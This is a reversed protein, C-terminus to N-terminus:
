KGGGGVSWKKRIEEVPDSTETPRGGNSPSGDLAKALWFIGKGKGEGMILSEAKQARNTAYWAEAHERKQAATGTIHCERMRDLLLKVGTSDGTRTPQSSTKVEERRKAKELRAEREAEQKNLLGPGQWKKWEHLFLIGDRDEIFGDKKPRGCDIMAKLFKQADGPWGAFDAIVEATWGDMNGDFRNEPKEMVALWLWNVHAAAYVLPIELDRALQRLKEERPFTVDVRIYAM